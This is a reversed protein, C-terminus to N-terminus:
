VSVFAPAPAAASGAKAAIRRTILILLIVPLLPALNILGNFGWNQLVTVLPICWLAALLRRDEGQQLLWLIPLLLVTTDYVYLYPSVLMSAAVLVAGKAGLDARGQWVKYVAFAAATAVLAHAIWAVPAPAGALRATAYVTAM